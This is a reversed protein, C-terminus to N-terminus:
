KKAASPPAQGAAPSGGGPAPRTSGPTAPPLASPTGSPVKSPPAKAAGASTSSTASGPAAPLQGTSTALAGSPTPAPGPLKQLQVADVLMMPILVVNRKTDYGIGAPSKVDRIVTEFTGGPAGRYISSSAWSSALVTGDSLKVLGDLMGAPLKQAAEKKGDRTVHYLEGSGFTVAWVGTEEAALGNPRGLEKDAIVKDARTGKTIKYISDSGTPEFGEKGAKMGSDSVYVTGDPAAAVGNLFTAGPIAIKGKPAGTKRDFLRVFTIDAVYLLGGAVALGKPANLTSGKKAGDIFALELVKGEPSVKSIFGNSDADLPKGNVNSVLYTDQEPDYLVSEPAKLGVDKLLIPPEAQSGAMATPAAATAAAPASAPPPEVIVSAPPAVSGPTQPAAPGDDAQHTCAAVALVSLFAPVGLREKARGLPVSHKLM